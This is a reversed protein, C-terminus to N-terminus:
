KLSIYHQIVFGCIGAICIVIAWIVTDRGKTINKIENLSDIAIKQKESHDEQTTMRRELGVVRGNTKTTQVLINSLMEKQEDLRQLIYNYQEM